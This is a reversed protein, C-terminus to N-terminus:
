VEVAAEVVLGSGAGGSGTDFGGEGGLEVVDVGEVNEDGVVSIM